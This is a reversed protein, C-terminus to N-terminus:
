FVSVESMEPRAASLLFDIDPKAGYSEAAIRAASLAAFPTNNKRSIHGLILQKTGGGLIFPIEAAAANNSLHGLDSLIRIKLHPPYPGRRLMDIDHNSEFLLVDCGTIGNRVDDTVIGLDTCVGCSGGSTNVRYGCSGQADHSTPFRVIEIGGFQASQCDAFVINATPPLVNKRILEEATGSTIYLPINNKQLLAKLGSVHDTHSHTVAIAAISEMSGGALKIRACISKYPIGADILVATKGDSIYTSNGSSGSALPCFRAM